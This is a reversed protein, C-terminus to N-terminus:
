PFRFTPPYAHFDDFDAKGIPMGAMRLIAFATVLHFFFNPLAYQTIFTLADTEFRAEGARELVRVAEKGNIDDPRLLSLADIREAIRVRLEDVTSAEADPLAALAPAIPRLARISFGATILAQRRFDFMDPSLSLSLIDTVDTPGVAEFDALRDLISDLQRLYRILVPVSVSYLDAM